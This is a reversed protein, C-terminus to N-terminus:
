EHVAVNEAVGGDDRGDDANAVAGECQVTVFEAFFLHLNHGIGFPTDSPNALGATGFISYTFADAYLTHGCVVATSKKVLEFLHNFAFTEDVNEVLAGELAEDRLAVSEADDVGGVEEGNFEVGDFIELVGM